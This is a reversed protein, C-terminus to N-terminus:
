LSFYGLDGRDEYGEEVPGSKWRWFRVWLQNLNKWAASGDDPGPNDLITLEAADNWWYIKKFRRAVAQFRPDNYWTSYSDGGKKWWDSPHRNTAFYMREAILVTQGGKTEVQQCGVNTIANFAEISGFSDGKFEDMLINNEATYGCWWKDQCNKTYLDEKLEGLVELKVLTTKGVATPGFYLCLERQQQGQMPLGERKLRAQEVWFLKEKEAADLKRKLTVIGQLNKCYKTIIGPSEVLLENDIGGIELVRQAVRDLDSRKGQGSNNDCCGKSDIYPGSVRTNPKSCYRINQAKTGNAYFVAMKHPDMSNHVGGTTKKKEFELYGQFHSTGNEGSEEQFIYGRLEDKKDLFLSFEEASVTPNNYTICFRKVQRGRKEGPTEVTLDIDDLDYVDNISRVPAATRSFLDPRRFGSIGAGVVEHTDDDSLHDFSTLPTLCRKLDPIILPTEVVEKKVVKKVPTKFCADCDIDEGTLDTVFKSHTNDDDYPADDYIKLRDIEIADSDSVPTVKRFKIFRKGFGPM